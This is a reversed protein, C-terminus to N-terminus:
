SCWKKGFQVFVVCNPKEYSVISVILKLRPSDFYRTKFILQISDKVVFSKVLNYLYLTHKNKLDNPDLKENYVNEGYQVFVISSEKVSYVIEVIQKLRLSDM